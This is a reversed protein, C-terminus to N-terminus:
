PCKRKSWTIYETRTPYERFYGQRCQGKKRRRRKVEECPPCRSSRTPTPQAYPQPYPVAPPQPLTLGPRDPVRQPVRVPTRTPTPTPTLLPLFPVLPIRLPTTPTPTPMPFPSPQWVQPATTPRPTPTPTPAPQPVPLPQQWITPMELPEPRTRRDRHPRIRIRPLRWPGRVPRSPAQWDPVPWAPATPRGIVPRRPPGKPIPLPAPYPYGEPVEDGPATESPWLIWAPIGLIRSLVRGLVRVAGPVPIPWSRPTPFPSPGPQVIPPTTPPTWVPPTPQTPINGVFAQRELFRDLERESQARPMVWARGTPPFSLQFSGGGFIRDWDSELSM